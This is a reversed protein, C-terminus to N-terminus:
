DDGNQEEQADQEEADKAPSEPTLVDAGAARNKGEAIEEAHGFAFDLGGADRAVLTDLNTREVGDLRVVGRAGRFAGQALGAAAHTRGVRDFKHVAPVLELEFGKLGGGLWAGGPAGEQQSRERARAHDNGDHKRRGFFNRGHSRRSTQRLILEELGADPA